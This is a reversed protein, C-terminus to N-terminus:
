VAILKAKDSPKLLAEQLALGFQQHDHIISRIEHYKNQYVRCNWSYINTM